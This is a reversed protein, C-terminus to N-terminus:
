GVEVFEVGLLFVADRVDVYRIRSDDFPYAINTVEGFITEAPDEGIYEIMTMGKEGVVPFERTPTGQQPSRRM